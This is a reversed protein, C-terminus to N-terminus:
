QREELAIYIEKPIEILKEETQPFTESNNQPSYKLYLKIVLLIVLQKQPNKFKEKSRTKLADAASKKPHDFLKQSYKGSVKKDINKGINKIFSYLGM